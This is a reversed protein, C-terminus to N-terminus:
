MNRIMRLGPDADRTESNMKMFKAETQSTFKSQWCLSINQTHYAVFNAKQPGHMIQM